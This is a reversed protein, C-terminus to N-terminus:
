VLEAETSSKTNLKQKMCISESAGKGLTMIGGTHSKMDKHVAFAADAWWRVLGTNDIELTLCLDETSKLYRLMRLLKGWDDQDPEKVRTCLFTVTPQIDCRSRKCVFLAKAVVTHFEEAREADLKVADDRVDFLHGAAPTKPKENGLEEGFKFEEIMAKVYRTMDIVVAGPVSEYDLLMALYDHKKGRSPKVLTVDEYKDKIWQVFDDIIKKDGHSAKLDDVHWTVTLQKGNVMKNAVCPDYPNVVFGEKELDSRLKKYFLLSSQMMGHLAKMVQVHLVPHGNEETLYPRYLEPCLEVLILALQGRIKMFVPEGVNETQVFANQIDVVAVERGEHAEIVSTLLVAPLSVTPSATDEM